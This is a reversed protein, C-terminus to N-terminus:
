ETAGRGRLLSVLEENKSETALSLATRGDEDKHHFDAGRDLLVEVVSTHGNMSAFHLASSGYVSIRGEKSASHLATRGDDDKQHIDAGRDLLLEVVSTYGVESAFYLATYGNEEKHHIDAGRDLLVEVVSTCGGWSAFHIATWGNDNRHHFDAGRDLLVKVVSTNGYLSALHLASRGILEDIAHILDPNRRLAEAVQKVSGEKVYELFVEEGTISTGELKMEEKIRRAEDKTVAMQKAFTAYKLTSQSEIRNIPDPSVTALFVTKASGGLSDQLFWTLTSRRFPVFDVSPDSLARICANLASLSTNISISEKIHVIGARAVRESGALDVLHMKSNRSEGTVSSQMELYVTFICHSRSSTDNMGTAVTTRVSTGLELLRDIDASTEVPEVLAGRWSTSLAVTKRPAGTVGMGTVSSISMAAIDGFTIAEINLAEGESIGEPEPRTCQIDVVERENNEEGRRVAAAYDLLDYAIDKYVEVMTCSAKWTWGEAQMDTLHTLLERVTRPILGPDDSPGFMTYSKGSSTQGYAIVTVNTGEIFDSVLDVGLCKYVRSQSAYTKTESPDSSDLVYDFDYADVALGRHQRDPDDLAAGPVQREVVYLKRDRVTMCSKVSTSVQTDTKPNVLPRVRVAVTVSPRLGAQKQHFRAEESPRRQVADGGEKKFRDGGSGSYALIQFFLALRKHHSKMVERANELKLRLDAIEDATSERNDRASRWENELGALTRGVGFYKREVAQRVFDHTMNFLGRRPSIFLHLLMELQVWKTSDIHEPRQGGDARRQEQCLYQVLEVGTLGVRSCCVACLVYEIVDVTSGEGVAGSYSETIKSLILQLLDPVDRAALVEMVGKTKLYSHSGHSILFNLALTIFMPNACQPSEWLASMIRADVAKFSLGLTTEVMQKRKEITLPELTVIHATSTRKVLETYMCCKPLCSIVVRISPPFTMPLWKVDSPLDASEEEYPEERLENVADLVIVLAPLRDVLAARSYLENITPWLDLLQVKNEDPLLPSGEPSLPRLVRVTESYISHLMDSLSCSESTCGAFYFVVEAGLRQVGNMVLDAMFTSKGGGSEGSVLLFGSGLGQRVFEQVQVKMEVDFDVTLKLRSRAFASHTSYTQSKGEATDPIMKLAERLLSECCAQMLSAGLQPNPYHHFVSIYKGPLSAIAKTEDKLRQLPGASDKEAVYWVSPDLGSGGAHGYDEDGKAQDEALRSKNYIQEDYRPDRYFVFSVPKDPKEYNKDHTIAHLFEMETISRDGYDKIYSFQPFGAAYEVDEDIWTRGNPGPLTSYNSSGYRAGFYGLFIDSKDIASLCTRVTEHRGSMEDTIGWRM